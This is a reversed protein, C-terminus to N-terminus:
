LLKERANEYKIKKLYEEDTLKIIKRDLKNFYSYDFHNNHIDTGLFDIYREKLLKKITKKASKGYMKFLSGINCQFLVGMNKYEDLITIDKQVNTYREPHALIIKYGKEILGSLIGHANNYEGNLPFEILLYKTNNMNIKEIEINEKIKPNIYIEAGLYVNIDIKEENIKETLINFYKNRKELSTELNSDLMYHPTLIINNVGKEKLNKLIKISEELSKSGDDINNIIHSHIDFM